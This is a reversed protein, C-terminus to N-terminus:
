RPALEVWLARAARNAPDINGRLDHHGSFVLGAENGRRWAVTADFLLGDKIVLLEVSSPLEITRTIRVRAGSPSLDRIVCDPSMLGNGIIIKGSLLTRVRRGVRHDPGAPLEPTVENAKEEPSSSASRREFGSQASKDIM